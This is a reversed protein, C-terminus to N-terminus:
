NDKFTDKSVSVMYTYKLKKFISWLMLTSESKFSLDCDEMPCEYRKARAPASNLRTEKKRKQQGQWEMPHNHKMHINM